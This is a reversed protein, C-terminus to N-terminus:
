PRGGEGEALGVFDAAYLVIIRRVQRALMDLPYYVAPNTHPIRGLLGLAALNELRYRIAGYSLPALPGSGRRLRDVLLRLVHSITDNPYPRGTHYFEKLLLIDKRDLRQALGAVDLVPGAQQTSVFQEGM